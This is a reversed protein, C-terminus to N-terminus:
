SGCLSGLQVLQAAEARSVRSGTPPCRINDGPHSRWRHVVILAGSLRISSASSVIVSWFIISWKRGLSDSTFSQLLAGFFTGASLLSTIVAQTQSDLAWVGDAGRSGGMQQVFDPQAHALRQTHVRV